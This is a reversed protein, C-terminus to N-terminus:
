NFFFCTHLSLLIIFAKQCYFVDVFWLCRYVLSKTGIFSILWDFVTISLKKIKVWKMASKRPHVSVVLFTTSTTYWFFYKSYLINSSKFKQQVATYKMRPALHLIIFRSHISSWKHKGVAASYFKM